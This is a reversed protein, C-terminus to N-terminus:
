TFFWSAVACDRKEDPDESVESLWLWAKIKQERSADTRLVWELYFRAQDTDQAKAAAIGRVLLDRASDSM